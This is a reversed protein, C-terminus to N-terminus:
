RLNRADLDRKLHWMGNYFAFGDYSSDPGYFQYLGEYQPRSPSLHDFVIMKMHRDYHLLMSVRASFRFVVRDHINKGTAFAPAGFTIHGEKDFTIVDIVKRTIFPDEYAIGLLTYYPTGEWRNLLIDYYLAGYWCAPTLLTDEPHRIEVSHDSLSIVRSTHSSADKQLIFGFYIFHGEPLSLNWNIVRFSTDPPYLKGVYRLSDFPYTFSLPDKLVAEFMRMVSDNLIIMRQAKNEQHIQRFLLALKGEGTKLFSTDQTLGSVVSLTLFLFFCLFRKM